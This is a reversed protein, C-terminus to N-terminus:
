KMKNKKWRKRWAYIREDLRLLRESILIIWIIVATAVGLLYMGAGIALGVAGVSWIGAATTLGKINSGPQKFIIGAGLFGLGTVVGAAVRTADGGPYAMPSIQSFAAAGVAVLAHTREGAAHGTIERELGIVYGLLAAIILRIIVEIDTSIVLDM